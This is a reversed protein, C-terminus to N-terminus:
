WRYKSLVASQNDKSFIFKNENTKTIQYPGFYKTLFLCESISEQDIKFAKIENMVMKTEGYAHLEFNLRETKVGRKKISMINNDLKFEMM